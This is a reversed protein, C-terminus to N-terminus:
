AYAIPIRAPVTTWNRSGSGHSRPRPPRSVKRISQRSSRTRRTRFSISGTVIASPRILRLRSILENNPVSTDRGLRGRRDVLREPDVLQRLAQEADRDRRDQERRHRAERRAARAVVQAARHAVAHALDAQQQDRAGHQHGHEGLRDRPEDVLAAREAGRGGVEGGVAISHHDIESGNWPTLRSNERM